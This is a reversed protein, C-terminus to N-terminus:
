RKQPCYSVRAYYLVLVRGFLWGTPKIDVIENNLHKSLWSNLESEPMSVARLVFGGRKRAPYM